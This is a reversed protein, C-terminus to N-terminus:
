DKIEIPDFGMASNDNGLVGGGVSKFVAWM